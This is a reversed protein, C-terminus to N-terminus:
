EEIIAESDIVGAIVRQFNSRSEENAVAIKRLHERNEIEFYDRSSTIQSNLRTENIRRVHQQRLVEYAELDNTKYVKSTWYRYTMTVQIRNIADDAWSVQIPAVSVPYAEFLTCSFTPENLENYQTVDVTCVYDDRYKFDFTLDNNIETMWTQFFQKQILNNDCLLTLTVDGYASMNPSKYTPGYIHADTTMIERGPFEAQECKFSLINSLDRYTLQSLLTANEINFEVIFRNSRSFGTAQNRALFNSISTFSRDGGTTIAVEQLGNVVPLDEGAVTQNLADQQQEPSGSLIGTTDTVIAQSIPTRQEAM